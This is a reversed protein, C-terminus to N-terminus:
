IKVFMEVTIVVTLLTHHVSSISSCILRRPIRSHDMWRHRDKERRYWVTAEYHSLGLWLVSKLWASSFCPFLMVRSVRRYDRGIWSGDTDISTDVDNNGDFDPGAIVKRGAIYVNSFYDFFYCSFFFCIYMIFQSIKCGPEGRNRNFNLRSLKVEVDRSIGSYNPNRDYRCFVLLAVRKNRWHLLNCWGNSYM